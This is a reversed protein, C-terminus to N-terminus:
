AANPGGNWERVFAEADPRSKPKMEIMPTGFYIFGVIEDKDSLGFAAKVHPDKANKGTALFSGFGRAHAANMMNQVAAGTAVVQEVEPVKDNGETIEACAVVILPSRMPRAREKEIAAEGADPDRKLLSEVFIDSLRERADGRVIHFRWPRIAGHDPARMATALIEDLADGAPAPDILLKPPVSIRSMLAEIADM